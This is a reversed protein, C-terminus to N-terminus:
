GDEALRRLKKQLGFRSLGLLRAAVTQNRNSRTLAAELYARELADVAPRLSLDGDLVPRAAGAAPAGFSEPLDEPTIPDSGLAVARALCNELERVNGPWGYRALARAADRTLRPPPRDGCLRALIHAILAPLDDPRARLPPVAIAIVDLRFRLDERFRGQEVLSALPVRTASVLRVDVKRSREDGVRRVLGDQVVRLLKAQMAPGTDAIEDLFLTGGDAVEFLGKRDRDAGTFAGRVHGFLESELLPEPMAGCNIAVFTRDRRPGLEHVARAILEKGTGSEGVVVVPLAVQAAREVLHLVAALPASEGVIGDLGPRRSRPATARVVALEADRDAVEAALRRNLEAIAAADRAQDDLLTATAIAVAAIDALELLWTAAEDDFASTRLRHDVYVCGIVRGRQHLPVALVSRLRLAAVSAAHDFREDVGADVTIVPEGTAIARLAISRSFAQPGLADSAFGRAVAVEVDGSPRALLLFGREGRTLEIATDIVEDLLRGLVPEANLRRSLALLRRLRLHEADPAGPSTAIASGVPAEPPPAALAALAVAEADAAVAARWAEPTAAVLEAHDARARGARRQATTVDGARRALEAALWGARWARDRRDESRAREAAAALLEGLHGPEDAIVGRVALRGRTLLTRARDDDTADLTVTEALAALAPATTTALEALARQAHGRDPMAGAVGIAWAARYAAAAGVRDDHRRAVDGTVLEAYFRAVPLGAAAARDRASRAAHAAAALQGVELLSVARNAEAVALEAVRGLTALEAVAAALVPLAAGHQGREALTTGHNLQAIAASHVDGGLRAATAAARYHDSAVALEGRQQAVMGRLSAARGSLADDDLARAIAEAVAIQALAGETDGLYLRASGAAEACLAGASTSPLPGLRAVARDAEDYRGRAVLLRAHPGIVAPDDPADHALEALMWEARDLEGARQYIRAGLLRAERALEPRRAAQAIAASADDYAGMVVAARAALLAATAGVLGPLEAAAGALELARRPQGTALAHEAAARLPEGHAAVRPLDVLAHAWRAPPLGRRRAVTVVASAYAARVSAPTAAALAEVLDAALRHRDDRGIAAHLARLQRLAAGLSDDTLTAAEAATLTDALEGDDAGGQWAALARAVAVVVAGAGEVLRTRLAGSTAAGTPLQARADRGDVALGVILAIAIAPLGRSAEWLAAAWAPAVPGDLMAVALASLEELAVSALAHQVLTAPLAPPEGEHLLIVLGPGRASAAAAIVAGAREDGALDIVTTAGARASAAAIVRQALAHGRQEDASGPDPGLGSSSGFDLGLGSAVTELSGALEATAPALDALTAAIQDRRLAEAVVARAGAGIPGHVLRPEVHDGRRVAVRAAILADVIPEASPWLTPALVRRGPGVAPPRAAVAVDAPLAARAAQARTRVEDASRPRAAPDASIMEQVLAALGPGEVDALRPRERRRIADYLAAGEGVVPAVGRAAYFLCAGLGYLDGRPHVVGALAEPAMFRPSGRAASRVGGGVALGLDILVARAAGGRDVVLINAPSVDCHVLGADHIAALASAVDVAIVWLLAARDPGTLPALATLPQGEIEDATFYRTGAAIPGLDDVLMGLEHVRPLAPHDLAALRAFEYALETRDAAAGEGLAKLACIAGGRQRDEVRIVAGQAGAGLDGLYRYRPRPRPM